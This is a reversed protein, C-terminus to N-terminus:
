DLLIVGGDRARVALQHMLRHPAHRAVISVLYVRLVKRVRGSIARASLGADALWADAAAKAEHRNDVPPKLREARYVVAKCAAPLAAQGSKSANGKKAASPHLIMNHEADWEVKWGKAELAQKLAQDEAPGPKAAPERTYVVNGDADAHEQWGQKRLARALSDALATNPKSAPATASSKEKGAKKASPPHLIMNHEADWEVRWGKAELAQKLAQDEAPGPKASEPERTYVVNGDADAHEQWGQKRLARALSDALATNPEVAPEHDEEQLPLTEVARAPPYLIMNHEEDWEVKWGKAELARQLAGGGKTAEPTRAPQERTYLTNGRSDTEQHWGQASLSRKLSDVLASDDAGAALSLLLLGAVCLARGVPSNAEFQSQM